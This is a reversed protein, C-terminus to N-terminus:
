KNKYKNNAEIIAIKRALKVITISQDKMELYSHLVYLIFAVVTLYLLLDAGRGVGVVHAVDNTTNPFIVAIIMLIALAILGIKKSAM